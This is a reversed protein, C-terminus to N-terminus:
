SSPCLRPDNTSTVKPDCMRVQGAPTIAIRLNRYTADGSGTVDIRQIPTTNTIRGFGNFTVVNSTTSGDQRVANVSVRRAADGAARASVVM